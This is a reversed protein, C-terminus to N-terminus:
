ANERKCEFFMPLRGEASTKRQYKTEVWDRPPSLWDAECEALWTYHPSSQLQELMWAAYDEHDTALLLRGELQHVRALMALTQSNVLRRKQQKTKPWPDPFLVFIEDLVAEELQQVLQRADGMHIRINNLKHQDIQVLLKAVGNVYPECGIYLTEPSCAAQAALHEGGGFGIELSQKIFGREQGRYVLRPLLTSILSQQYPRLARGRNRGFSSLYPNLQSKSNVACRM